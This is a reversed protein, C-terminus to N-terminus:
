FGQRLALDCITKRLRNLCPQNGILSKKGYKFRIPSVEIFLLQVTNYFSRKGDFLGDNLLILPFAAQSLDQIETMRDAM